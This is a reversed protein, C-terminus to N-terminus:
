RYTLRDDVIAFRSPDANYTLRLLEGAVSRFLTVRDPKGEQVATQYAFAVLGATYVLRDHLEQKERGSMRSLAPTAMLSASVADFVNREVLPGPDGEIGAHVTVMTVTFVTVAYALNNEAGFDAASRDYERAVVGFFRLLDDQSIGRMDFARVVEDAARGGRTRQFTLRDDTSPQAAGSKGHVPLPAGWIVNQHLMTGLSASIPNNWSTGWSDTWQASAPTARCLAIGMAFLIAVRRHTPHLFDM